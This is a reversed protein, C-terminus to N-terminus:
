RTVGPPDPLVQLPIGEARLEDIADDFAGGFVTYGEKAAEVNYVDIRPAIQKRIAEIARVVLRVQRPRPEGARLPGDKFGARRLAAVQADTVSVIWYGRERLIVRAGLDRLATEPKVRAVRVVRSAAYHGREPKFGFEELRRDTAPDARYFFSRGRVLLPRVGLEQEILAAETADEVEIRSVPPTPSGPNPSPTDQAHGEAAVLAFFAGFALGRKTM